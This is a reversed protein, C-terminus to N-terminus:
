GPPNTPDFRTQVEVEQPEHLRRMPDDPWSFTDPAGLRRFSDHDWGSRIMEGCRPCGTRRLAKTMKFHGCALRVVRGRSLLEEATRTQLVPDFQFETASTLAEIPDPEGKLLEALVPDVVPASGWSFRM